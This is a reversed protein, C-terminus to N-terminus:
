LEFRKTVAWRGIGIAAATDEDKKSCLELGYIENVRAVYPQVGDVKRMKSGIAPKWDSPNVKTLPLLFEAAIMEVLTNLSGHMYLARAGKRNGLGPLYECALYSPSYERVLCRLTDLYGEWRRFDKATLMKWGGYAHVDARMDLVAWGSATGPDIALTLHTPEM